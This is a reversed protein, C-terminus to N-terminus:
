RKLSLSSSPIAIAFQIIHATDVFLLCDVHRRTTCGASFRFNIVYFELYAGAAVENSITANFTLLIMTRLVLLSALLPRGFYLMVFQKSLGVLTM